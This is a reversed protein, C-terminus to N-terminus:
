FTASDGRFRGKQRSVPCERRLFGVPPFARRLIGGVFHYPFRTRSFTGVPFFFAEPAAAFLNRYRSKTMRAGCFFNWAGSNKKRPESNRTGAGFKRAPSGLFYFVSVFVQVSAGNQAFFDRLFRSNPGSQAFTADRFDALVSCNTQKQLCKMVNQNKPDYRGKQKGHPPTTVVRKEGHPHCFQGAECPSSGRLPPPPRVGVPVVGSADVSLMFPDFFPSFDSKHM